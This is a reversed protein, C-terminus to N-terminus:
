AAMEQALILQRRLWYVLPQGWQIAVTLAAMLRLVFDRRYIHALEHAIVARLEQPSWECWACPLLVVPRWWGVVAASVLDSSGRVQPLWRLGISLSLEEVVAALHDDAILRSRKCL